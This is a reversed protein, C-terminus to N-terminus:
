PLERAIWTEDQGYVKEQEKGLINTKQLTEICSGGFEDGGDFDMRQGEGYVGCTGM